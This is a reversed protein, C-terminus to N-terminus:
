KNLKYFKQLHDWNFIQRHDNMNNKIELSLKILNEKNEKNKFLNLVKLWDKCDLYKAGFLPFKLLYNELIINGALSTTRIRYQPYKHDSKIYKIESLCLKAIPELFEFTNHGLQTKRNQTLEFKCEVRSNSVRILFNGDTEIFGSLWSNTLLPEINISNKNILIGKLQYWDLLNYLSYIKPTRMRGNIINIIFMIGELSNIVFNYANSHSLRQISGFGLTQQITSVLPFNKLPFSIEISPYNIRGKSSYESKPVIITGNGELLGTFYHYFNDNYSVLTFKM